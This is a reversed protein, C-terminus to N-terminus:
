IINIPLIPTFRPFHPLKQQQTQIQISLRVMHYASPGQLAERQILEVSVYAWLLKIWKVVGQANLQIFDAQEKLNAYPWGLHLIYLKSNTM